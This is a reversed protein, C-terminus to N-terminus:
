ESGTVGRSGTIGLTLDLNRVMPRAYDIYVEREAEVGEVDGESAQIRGHCGEKWRVSM